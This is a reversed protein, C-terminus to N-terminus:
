LIELWSLCDKTATHLFLVPIKTGQDTVPDGNEDGTFRFASLNYGEANTTTEFTWSYDGSTEAVIDNVGTFMTACDFGTDVNDVCVAGAYAALAALATSKAFSRM